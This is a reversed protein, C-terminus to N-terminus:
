AQISGDGDALEAAEDDWDEAHRRHMHGVGSRALVMATLGGVGLVPVVDVEYAVTAMVLAAYSFVVGIATGYSLRQGGSAVLLGVIVAVGGYVSFLAITVGGLVSMGDGGRFGSFVSYWHGVIAAAAPVIIWPGEIGVLGAFLVALAGKGLDGILVVVGPWAGVKKRVNAAGALGSGVSFIDVGSRRSIQDALPLAGLMYAGLVALLVTPASTFFESL